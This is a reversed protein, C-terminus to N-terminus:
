NLTPFPMRRHIRNVIELYNPENEPTVYGHRILFDLMILGCNPKFENNLLANVTDQLSLLEFSEVEGDNPKPIVHEPLQLDYIYEVEGGIFASEANFCDSFSDGQYFFYSVVGASKAYQAIIGKPINAEEWSEKVLTEFVGCPYGLGGAIVNDMMNPWTPKSSARRPIWFKIENSIEDITFGNVHVGYTIIGLIGAVAREVLVYPKHKDIWVAYKENRWGMLVAIESHRYMEIGLKELSSNRTEFDSSRFILMRNSEDVRFTSDFLSKTLLKQMEDIVFRLVYGIRLGDHSSLHFVNELFYPDDCYDCPLSDVRKVIDLFTKTDPSEHRLIEAGYENKVVKM